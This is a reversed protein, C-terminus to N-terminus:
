PAVLFLWLGCALFVLGALMWRGRCASWGALTLLAGVAAVTCAAVLVTNM